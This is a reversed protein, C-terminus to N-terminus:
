AILWDNGLDAATVGQLTAITAFNNAGGDEDVQLLTSDGTGATLRVFGDGTLGEATHGFAGLMTHLDVRDGDAPKFDSIVDVGQGIEGYVFTDAGAGGTLSDAGTGGFLWDNGAGGDLKDDGTGGNLYDDGAGGSLTDAGGLGSLRDNGGAGTLTNAASTGRLTLPVELPPPPPPPPTVLGADGDFAVLGWEGNETSSVHADPIAIGNISASDLSVRDGDGDILTFGVANTGHWDGHLTFTEGAAPVSQWEFANGVYEQGGNVLVYANIHPASGIQEATMHLVLADPGTGFEPM